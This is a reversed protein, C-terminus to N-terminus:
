SPYPQALLRCVNVLIRSAQHTPYPVAVLVLRRRQETVQKLTAPCAWRVASALQQARGMPDLLVDDAENVAIWAELELVLQEDLPPSIHYPPVLVLPTGPSLICGSRYDLLHM